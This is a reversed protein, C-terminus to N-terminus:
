LKSSFPQPTEVYRYLAKTNLLGIHADSLKSIGCLQMATELEDKLVTPTSNLRM